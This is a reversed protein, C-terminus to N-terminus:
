LEPKYRHVGVPEHVLRPCYRPFDSADLTMVRYRSIWRCDCITLYGESATGDALYVAAIM